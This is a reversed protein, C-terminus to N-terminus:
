KRAEWLTLVSSAVMIGALAGYYIRYGGDTVATAFFLLLIFLGTVVFLARGSTM